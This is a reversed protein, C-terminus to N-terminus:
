TYELYFPFHHILFVISDTQSLFDINLRIHFCIKPLIQANEKDISKLSRGFKGTKSKIHSIAIIAITM